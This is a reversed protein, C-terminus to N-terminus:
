LSADKRRGDIYRGYRRLLASQAEDITPIPDSIRNLLSVIRVAAFSLEKRMGDSRDCDLAVKMMKGLEVVDPYIADNNDALHYSIDYIEDGLDTLDDFAEEENENM